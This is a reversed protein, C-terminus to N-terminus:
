LNLRRWYGTLELYGLGVPKGDHLARVAGEWYITGASARTDQEQDDLLPEIAFEREGVRILLSVPYTTGTRASKWERRPIFRVEDPSFVTIARDYAMQGAQM